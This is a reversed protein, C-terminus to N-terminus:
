AKRVHEFTERRVGSYMVPVDGVQVKKMGGHPIYEPADLCHIVFFDVSEQNFLKVGETGHISSFITPRNMQTNSYKVM